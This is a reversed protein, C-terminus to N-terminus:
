LGVKAEIQSIRVELSNVAQWMARDSCLLELDGDCAVVYVDLSGDEQYVYATNGFVKIQHHREVPTQDYLEILKM